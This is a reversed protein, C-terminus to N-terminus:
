AQERRWRNLGGALSFVSSFGSQALLAAAQQSRMGAQCMVVLTAERPLEGLRAALEPLPILLGGLHDQAYEDGNRVDLLLHTRGEACWRAYEIPTLEQWGAEVAPLPVGCWRAYDVLETQTPATGTLPNQPDPTYHLISSKHTLADYQWLQNVLPQGLGTLLKLVELAQVSGVMGPLAGLVGGEACDPVTGPAPPQPFLCRYNGSLQGNAERVNFVAVQGEFRFVSGFVLPKGELVSADNVLYRTAFNDSGDLVIDYQRIIARANEANLYHNWVEFHVEPNLRALAQAAFEAKLQGVAETTYLVQRQLNSLSIRDGDVIGLTGVGAATLYQLVPLGLGGAGVVLVRARSLRAQAEASFGPLVLHRAYREHEAPAAM